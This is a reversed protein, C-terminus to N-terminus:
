LHLWQKLTQFCYSCKCIVSTFTKYFQGMTENVEVSTSTAFMTGQITMGITTIAMPTVSNIVHLLRVDPNSRLDEILALMIFRM